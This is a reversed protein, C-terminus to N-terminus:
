NEQRYHNKKETKKKWKSIIIGFFFDKQIGFFYAEQSASDNPPKM